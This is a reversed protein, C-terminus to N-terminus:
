LLAWRVLRAPAIAKMLWQLSHHDTEITFKSGYVYPRFSECAYIIALAGKERVCWKKEAPQQTRSIFQIPKKGEDSIQSLVADIGDDSADTTVIFPLSYNPYNLTPINSLITKLTQFTAEANNDWNFTTLLTNLPQCQM